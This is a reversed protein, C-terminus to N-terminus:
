KGTCPAPLIPYLMGGVLRQPELDNAQWSAAAGREARVPGGMPETM